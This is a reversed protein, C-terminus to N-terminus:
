HTWILDTRLANRNPFATYFARMNRLNRIDFGKGFEETLRESVNQLIGKGYEARLSGNQEHEVIICGIQWYAQVMAFNVATYAQNRSSLLTERIESYIERVSPNSIDSM